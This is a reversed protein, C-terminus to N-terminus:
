AITAAEPSICIDWDPRLHTSLYVLLRAPLETEDIKAFVKTSELYAMARVCEGQYHDPVALTARTNGAEITLAATENDWTVSDVLAHRWVLSLVEFASRSSARSEDIAEQLAFTSIFEVDSQTPKNNKIKMFVVM